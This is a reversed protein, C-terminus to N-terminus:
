DSTPDTEETAAQQLRELRAKSSRYTGDFLESFQATFDEINRKELQDLCKLAATHMNELYAKQREGHQIDNIFIGFILRSELQDFIHGLAPSSLTNLFYKILFVLLGNRNRYQEMELKLQAIDEHTCNDCASIAFARSCSSLIELAEFYEKLYAEKQPSFQYESIFKTGVGNVAQAFGLSSLFALATRVTVGSVAYREMLAGESPFFDGPVFGESQAMRLLDYAVRHYLPMPSQHVLWKFAMPEIDSDIPLASFERSLEFYAQQYCLFLLTHLQPHQGDRILLTLHNLFSTMAEQEGQMLPACDAVINRLMDFGLIQFFLDQVLGNGTSDLLVKVYRHVENLLENRNTAPASDRVLCTLKEILAPDANKAGQVAMGPIINPLARYCDLQAGMRQMFVRRRVAACKPDSPDFIVLPRKREEMEIFGDEKLLRFAHRLSTYGVDYRATINQMSSLQYGTPFAGSLIRDVIKHYVTRYLPVEKEM